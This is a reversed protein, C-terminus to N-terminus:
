VAQALYTQLMMLRPRKLEPILRQMLHPPYWVYHPPPTSIVFQQGCAPDPCSLPVHTRTARELQELEVFHMVPYECHIFARFDQPMTTGWHRTTCSDCQLLPVHEFQESFQPRAAEEWPLRMWWRSPNSFLSRSMEGKHEQMFRYIEASDSAMMEPHANTFFKSLIDKEDESLDFQYSEVGDVFQKSNVDYVHIRPRRSAYACTFLEAQTWWSRLYTDSQVLVFDSSSRIDDSIIAVVQWRLLQPLIENRLALIEGDYMVVERPMQASLPNELHQMTQVLERAEDVNTGRFSIFTRPRKHYDKEVRQRAAELREWFQWQITSRTASKVKDWWGRAYQDLADPPLEKALWDVIEQNTQQKPFLPIGRHVGWRVNFPVPTRSVLFMFDRYRPFRALIDYNHEGEPAASLDLIVVDSMIADKIDGKTRALELNVKGRLLGAVWIRILEGLQEGAINRTPVVTLRLPM